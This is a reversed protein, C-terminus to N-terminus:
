LNDFMNLVLKDEVGWLIEFTAVASSIRYGTSIYCAYFPTFSLGYLEHCISLSHYDSDFNLTDIIQRFTKVIYSADEIERFKSDIKRWQNDTLEDLREWFEFVKEANPGLFYQPKSLVEKM